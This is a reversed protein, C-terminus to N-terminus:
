RARKSTTVSSKIAPHLSSSEFVPLMFVGVCGGVGVDVAVGVSVAVGVGVGVGLTGFGVTSPGMRSGPLGNMWDVAKSSDITPYM